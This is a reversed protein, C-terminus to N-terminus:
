SPVGKIMKFLQIISFLFILFFYSGGSGESAKPAQNRGEGAIPRKKYM